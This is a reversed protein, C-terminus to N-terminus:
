VVLCIWLISTLRVAFNQAGIFGAFAQLRRLCEQAGGLKHVWAQLHEREREIAVFPGM